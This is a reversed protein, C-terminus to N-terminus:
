VGYGRVDTRALQSQIFGNREPFTFLQFSFHHTGWIENNRYLDRHLTRHLEQSIFPQHARSLCRLM